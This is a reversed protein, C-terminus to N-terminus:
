RLRKCSLMFGHVTEIMRYFLVWGEYNQSCCLLQKVLFVSLTHTHPVVLTENGSLQVLAASPSRQAPVKSFIVTLPWAFWNEENEPSGIGNVHVNNKGEVRFVVCVAFTNYVM